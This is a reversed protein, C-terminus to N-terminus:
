EEFWSDKLTKLFGTRMPKYNQLKNSHAILLWGNVLPVQGMDDLSLQTVQKYLDKREAETAAAKAKELLEDMQQNCYKQVNIAMGCKYNNTLFDDPDALPSLWYMTTIDFNSTSWVEDWYRPIEMTGITAKIGAAALNAQIIPAMAMQAPFSSAITMSTEFGDPYGAEALLAKAKEPDGNPRFYQIDAYAWNWQPVVGGLIPTAQGFFAGKVLAERDIAQAIAQRVKPNDLPKKGTNALLWNYRSGELTVGVLEPNSQITAWDKPPIENSFNVEGSMVANTLATIDSIIRYEMADFYPKGAEFYTANKEFKIASRPQYSVFKFPGSGVPQANLDHGSEVLKKPVISSGPFAMYILFPGTRKSLKFQVTQPDIVDVSAITEVQAGYSYGSDKARLRDFSFKVDEATLPDGNHFTVGSRLKFTYTLGDESVEYSEALEPYPKADPDLAMLTSYVQEIVVHSMGSPGRQPDFGAPDASFAAILTGGPKGQAFTPRSWSGTAALAMAGAAGLNFRRRSITSLSSSQLLGPYAM